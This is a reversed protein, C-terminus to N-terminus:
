FLCTGSVDKIKVKKFMGMEKKDSGSIISKYAYNRGLTQQTKPNWEDVLAEGKWNLWEKNKELSLENVLKSAIRSREKKIETPLQKMSAAETGPRVSYRSVNVFDPKVKKLLELTAQFDEETENPFGVIIDTWVTITPFAKRFEEVCTVFDNVSHGRKMLQLIRDSGSQVPIHIFKYVNDSRYSDILEPLIRLVHQPNMMGIRIFYKGSIETTIKNLLTALNEEDDKDFEYCGNDQSTLWFEKFGQKKAISLDKLIKDQEYSCLKGRALKTICFSCDNVCGQSIQEIFAVKSKSIRVLGTKDKQDSIIDEQKEIVKVIDKPNNCGVVNASTLERLRSLEANPMCGAVILQKGEGKCYEDYKELLHELKNETTEKVICTNIIIIDAMEKNTTVNYGKQTLLGAMIESDNQNAACGYTEIYVSKM